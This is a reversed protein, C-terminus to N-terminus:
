EMLFALMESANQAFFGAGEMEERTGYGWLAAATPIGFHAAGDMDLRRDGVMICGDYPPKIKLEDLVYSIVQVKNTRSSDLSAGALFAFCQTLGFHAIIRRAFPEPKTTALAIRAGAGHLAELMQAVGDYLSNEFLGKKAYYKRHLSLARELDDGHLGFVHEMNYQIPPGILEFIRENTGADIGFASLAYRYANATGPLSETLTGDLDFLINPYRM